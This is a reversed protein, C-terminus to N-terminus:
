LGFRLPRERSVRIHATGKRWLSVQQPTGEPAPGIDRLKLFIYYRWTCSGVSIRCRIGPYPRPAVAPILPNRVGAAIKIL